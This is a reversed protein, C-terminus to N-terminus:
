KKLLYRMLGTLRQFYSKRVYRHLASFSEGRRLGALYKKRNPHMPVSRRSDASAPLVADLEARKVTMADQMADLVAQGKDTHVLIVSTGTDDDMEPMVADIGWCDGVTLDSARPFTKFRCDYCSPRLCIDGLFLNMFADEPFRRSCTRGNEFRLTVSYQKWGSRKDRFRVSRIKSGVREEQDKRYQEWIKPSPVGHCLVDMTLLRDYSDRICM